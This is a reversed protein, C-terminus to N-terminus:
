NEIFLHQHCCFLHHTDRSKYIKPTKKLYPMFTGLKMMTLYVHFIKPLKAEGEDTPMGLFVWGSYPQLLYVFQLTRTLTADQANLTSENDIIGRRKLLNLMKLILMKVNVDVM